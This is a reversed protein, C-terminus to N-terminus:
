ARARSRFRPPEYDAATCTGRVAVPYRSHMACVRRMMDRADPPLLFGARVARNTARRMASQYRDFTPYLAQVQEDSFPVTIGGLNCATSEYRAVPM